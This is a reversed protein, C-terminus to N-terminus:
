AMAAPNTERRALAAPDTDVELLGAEGGEGATAGRGRRDADEEGLGALEPEV